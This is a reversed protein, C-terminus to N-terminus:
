EVPAVPKVVEDAQKFLELIKEDQENGESNTAIARRELETLRKIQFAIADPEYGELEVLARLSKRWLELDKSKNLAQELVRVARRGPVTQWPGDLRKLYVIAEDVSSTENEARESLLKPLEDRLRESSRAMAVAAELLKPDATKQIMSRAAEAVRLGDLTDRAALGTVNALAFDGLMAAFHADRVPSEGCENAIVALMMPNRAPNKTSLSGRLIQRIRFSNSPDLLLTKAMHYPAKRWLSKEDQALQLDPREGSIWNQLDELDKWVRPDVPQGHVVYDPVEGAIRWYNLLLLDIRMESTEKLNEPEPQAAGDMVFHKRLHRDLVEKTKRLAPLEDAPAVVLVADISEFLAGIVAGQAEPPTAELRAIIEAAAEPWLQFLKPLREDNALRQMWRQQTAFPGAPTGNESSAAIATFFQLTEAPDLLFRERLAGVIEEPPNSSDAVVVLWSDIAALRLEQKEGLAAIAEM